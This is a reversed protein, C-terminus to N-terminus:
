FGSMMCTNFSSYIKTSRCVKLVTSCCDEILQVKKGSVSFSLMLAMYM